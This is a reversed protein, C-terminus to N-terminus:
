QGPRVWGDPQLQWGGGLAKYLNVVVILQDRQVQTLAYQAPFLQQEAELVEFYSARGADYRVTALDVARQLAGVRSELATRRDILNQQAILVDSTEQFATVLTKRYQAVTEDWFAKRNNETERLRGGTYLPGALTGAVNWMGFTGNILESINLSRGGFLASLGIKPFFNSAAVGVQANANIMDQEAARIDPRRQLLSTTLGVPTLPMTQQTLPRGRAIAGPNGGLLASIVNEQQGIAQKLEAIRDRSNDYNAQAREVPLRTDRGAEFRLTFLEVNKQFVAASSDAIALERDLSLLRFYAAAVDSVLTLQVGRRIEEQAYLSARAADKTSRIRGWVDLEWFANVNASIGAYQVQEISNSLPLPSMAGGGDAGYGVQPKNGSRAVGFTARAQDIRAIAVQIDYNNVLAQNVLAQLQPDNFVQWWPLDALSTTDTTAPQPEAARFEPAVKVDPRAYNPGVRCGAVTFCALVVTCLRVLGRHTSQTNM